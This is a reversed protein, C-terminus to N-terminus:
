FEFRLGMTYKRGAFSADEVFPAYGQYSVQPQDTLNSGTLFAHLRDSISYHVEADVRDEAAYFEDSEIDGGLGEIYDDRYTYDIRASFGGWNYGLTVTYLLESFGELPLDRGDTRDPYNADSETLTTSLAVNLGQLAGPLFYMNQRAILEIGYNKADTGNVPREYEFDGNTVAIPVGASDLENFEYTETYTFDSIDKYFVGVSYLGGQETYYELQADFNDSIAPQLNANGDEINGEDDVWRGRSLESLRPRAYSRNYSERLILNESLAHRLHLGPLVFGHSDSRSVPTVSAVDNLYSVMKNENDWGYREYRLGGIITHIGTEFTGMAYVASITEEADYDEVNSDELSDDEVFEFLEPNSQLMALGVQPQVDFYKPKRFIVEDTPVLVQAYPFADDTEYLNVTLDRTQSSLRYKAGTKFTFAGNDLAFNREWDLRASFADETKEGYVKELEGETLLSLDTSDVGNIVDVRIDGNPDFVEYEFIFWPDDPEMLMNMESDDHIESKNSSFSLNYTLVDADNEHSGGASLSYLTNDQDELTGIWGRSGESGATGRGYTPTLAAYTKNGDADNEFETDIDIDTEYKTGQRSYTSVTPRLYFSNGESIRYDISGSITNTKTERTDHEFHTSEMFWVPDGGYAGLNLAPNNEPTVQVWDQDANRSYRDTDYSSVTLSLGLNNQEGNVSFIDSYSFTGSQGWNGPEENLQASLDLSMQRGQRQFASRSVLNVIGGVADGDRDPTPAKIVEIKTIGDAALQRPNFSNSGGSSPVRNGDMQVSNYEGSVGRINISGQSGDQDLDVSIGPLRQMAQGINGDVMAGFSEESIVNVIGAATKQENIARDIGTRMGRVTIMEIGAQRELDTNITTTQDARVTVTAQESELGVYTITVEYEGPPIDTISFRGSADTYDRYRADSITVIAGELSRGSGSESVRGTLTGEGSQAAAHTAGLVFALTIAGKKVRELERVLQKKVFGPRSSSFIGRQVISM